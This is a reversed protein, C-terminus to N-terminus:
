KDDTFLIASFEKILNRSFITRRFVIQIIIALAFFGASILFGQEISGIHSGYWFSFSFMLFICVAFASIIVSLSTLLYVGVRTLMELLGLRLLDVRANLYDKLIETIRLFNDSLESGAMNTTTKPYIPIPVQKGNGIQAIDNIFRGGL